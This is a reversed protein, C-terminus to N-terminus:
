TGWVINSNSISIGQKDANEPKPQLEQMYKILDTASNLLYTPQMSCPCANLSVINALSPLKCRGTMLMCDVTRMQAIGMLEVRSGDSSQCSFCGGM